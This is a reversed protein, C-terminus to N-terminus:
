ACINQGEAHTIQRIAQSGHKTVRYTPLPFRTIRSRRNDTEYIWGMELLKQLKQKHFMRAAKWVPLMPIENRLLEALEPATRDPWTEIVATAMIANKM